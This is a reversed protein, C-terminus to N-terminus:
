EPTSLGDLSLGHAIDSNGVEGGRLIGTSM